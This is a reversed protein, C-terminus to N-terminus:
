SNSSFTESQFYYLNGILQLGPVSIEKARNPNEKMMNDLVVKSEILLRTRDTTIKILSPNIKFIECNAVDVEKRRRSLTDKVVRLDVKFGVNITSEGSDGM